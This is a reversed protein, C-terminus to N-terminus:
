FNHGFGLVAVTQHNNSSPNAAGIQAVAPLGLSNTGAAHQYIAGGYAYTRKSISYDFGATIQQYRAADVGNSDTYSWSIGLLLSATLGYKFNIEGINFTETGRYAAEEETLGTVTTEGLDTYRTNSYVAGVTANGITYAAGVSFIKQAGASAFGESVPSWMNNGTASASPIDGYFSFNPQNAVQYGIGLKVNGNVYGGGVAVIRHEALSGGLNGFSYMAQGTFGGITPTTYIVTNNVWRFSDLNDVDGPHAGYGAGSFAWPNATIPWVYWFGPSFQRGITVTGANGSIGVDAARGFIAGGNAIAGTDISFGGELNFLAKLGGGLDETGKLGWRNSSGTGSSLFYQDRGNSNSNFALADDVVGYLTITSQAHASSIATWAFFAIVGRKM